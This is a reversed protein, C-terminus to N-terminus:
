CTSASTFKIKIKMWSLLTTEKLWPVELLIPLHNKKKIQVTAENDKIKIIAGNELFKRSLTPATCSEFGPLEKALLRYLNHALLSLALDFDVKVVISSSPHNLNFFIIQEAIEQEVLWRRAYKKVIHRVDLDFDNTVLFAPQERGHETLIVQRAQGTYHRLNCVGDHVRILQFNGNAREVRIKQWESEPITSVKELLKKGRRRLTLFKIGDASKNLLDLNKYTTFKSDFILMKPAIGRGQKWFDIFDLVAESQNRHKIEADTYSLYGTSPDQVILALLSKLAKNRSGSWNKELVSVDGWHPIAKFDLNFEGGEKENDKFIKSLEILFAQNARRETRYSYTSLTTSKPLVNLGAFFGLARDMNWCTDHSLRETGLIKLALFSLVSQVDSLSTTKPFRAACIAPIIDLKELLPLFILPGVGQETTFEEDKLELPMCQPAQLTSPLSVCFREIRTRKPLPAFGEAKLIKDITDLSLSRGESALIVKIDQISHNQKRLEIIKNVIEDKTFRGKPGTKKEGFFPNIGQKLKQAFELRIKKFYTPKFGFKLAASEASLDTTYFEKLAEYQRQTACSPHLFYDKSNMFYISYCDSNFTLIYNNFFIFPYYYGELKM